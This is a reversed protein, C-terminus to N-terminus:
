YQGGVCMDLYDIEYACTTGSDNWSSCPLDVMCEMLEVYRDDCGVSGHRELATQCDFLCESGSFMQGSLEHCQGATECYLECITKEDEEECATVTAAAIASLLVFMLKKEIRM